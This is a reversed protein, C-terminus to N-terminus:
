SGQVTVKENVSAVSATRKGWGTWFGGGGTAAPSASSPTEVKATPGKSLYGGLGITASREIMPQSPSSRHLAISPAEGLGSGPASLGLMKRLSELKAKAEEAEQKAVAEATKAQVLELVLADADVDLKPPTALDSSSSTRNPHESHNNLAANPNILSSTRKNYTPAAISRNSNTRSLKFGRLGNGNSTRSPWESETDQSGDPTTAASKRARLDHVQKELRQKDAHANRAYLHGEKVQDKLNSIEQQQESMRRSFEQTKSVEIILQEKSRALEERLQSKSQMMSSRRNSTPASFRDEVHDLLASLDLHEPAAHVDQTPDEEPVETEQIIDDNEEESAMADADGVPVAKVTELSEDSISSKVTESSAKKRLGDLLSRVAQRDEDREERERQLQTALIAHDRQMESLATLLDEIQGHLNKDKNSKSANGLVSQARLSAADANSSDRFVSTADTSSSIMSDSAGGGEMSNLTSAISQKSPSRRLFSVPRGPAALNPSLSTSKTANSGLWLRGLFRSAASGVSEAPIAADTAGGEKFSLELAQLNDHTVVGTLSVFDNVFEDANYHYCDWLGRSLLLQMVDEFETCALIKQENKRMLSLAVRMITESAGEAFIVDYIRFLMPLPCTVAFFSLFWQSVYAPEIQLFDLHSSLNPLHQKLLERFQHIRVHLGSLDPLFCSRLDYHEMLRVLVCFAEKDGMHMLLPGVLFGLGQCYGIKQDYLSFCKLVRGLMRQGDGDPDRFMEVGPFSRGLDKGIIGEYPSSEGCLRDFQDELLRDRAGSMSQWVVGRLPPPIGSRIKKSLLTPLCQATRTYDQVLAAYFELDTMPPAPIMSYRLSLPTPGNVLKKLHQISPPRSQSRNRIEVAQTKAIGSKPNTALLNNEQELRALLLATSDESAENRPEKEESRELEEWNVEGNEATESTDSGSQSDRNEPDNESGNESPVENGNPDMAIITPSGEQTQMEEEEDEPIIDSTDQRATDQNRADEEPAASGRKLKTSGLISSRTDVTLAPPESLRVTVMSDHQMSLPVDPSAFDAETETDAPASPGAVKVQHEADM